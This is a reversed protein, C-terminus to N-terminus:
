LVQKLCEKVKKLIAPYKDKDTSIRILKYGNNSAVEDKLLDNRLAKRTSHYHNSDVEVLVKYEPLLFDFYKNEVCYECVVEVESEIFAKRFLANVFSQPLMFKETSIGNAKAFSLANRRIKKVLLNADRLKDNLTLCTELINQLNEDRKLHYELLTCGMFSDLNSLEIRDSPSLFSSYMFDDLILNHFNINGKVTQPAIELKKSIAEITMGKKLLELLRHKDIIVRPKGFNVANSNRRKQSYSVRASFFKKREEESYYLEYSNQFIKDSIGLHEKFMSRSYFEDIFYKDFVEKSMVSMTNRGPRPDPVKLLNIEM